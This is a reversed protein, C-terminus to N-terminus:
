FNLAASDVGVKTGPRRPRLTMAYDVKIIGDGVHGHFSKDYLKHLRFKPKGNVLPAPTVDTIMVIREYYYGQNTDRGTYICCISLYVTDHEARGDTPYKRRVPPMPLSEGGRICLDGSAWKVEDVHVGDYSPGRRETSSRYMTSVNMAPTLGTNMIFSSIEYQGTEFDFDTIDMDADLWPRRELEFMEWAQDASEKALRANEAATAGNRSAVSANWIAAIMVGLSLGAAIIQVIVQMRYAYPKAGDAM